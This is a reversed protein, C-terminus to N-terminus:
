KDYRFSVTGTEDEAAVLNGRRDYRYGIERGTGTSIWTRNGGPGYGFGYEMGSGNETLGTIRGAKDYALFYLGDRSAAERLYGDQGYRYSYLVTEGQRIGTLRNMCDYSYSISKGDPFSVEAPNGRIDYRYEAEYAAAEKIVRSQADYRFVYEREEPTIISICNGGADYTFTQAPGEDVALSVCDGAPSYGYTIRSGCSDTRTVVNGGPGYAYRIEAGSPDRRVTMRRAADYERTWTNGEPDTESAPNGNKDYGYSWDNGEEDRYGTLRRAGDYTFSVSSGDAKSIKELHGEATYTYKVTGLVRDHRETLRGLLDYRYSIENKGETTIGTIDGAPNYRYQRTSGDPHLVETIRPGDRRYERRFGEQDTRSVLRGMGDYGFRVTGGDPYVRKVCKGHDGYYSRTIGGLPNEYRICNGSRYEWVSVGGRSNEKRILRGSKDYGYGTIGGGPDTVETVRGCGDYRFRRIGGASLLREETCNGRCDYEFETVCGNETKRIIRGCGNYQLELSIGSGEARVQNHRTDYGFTVTSGNKGTYSIMDGRLSYSWKETGGAPDVAGTLRGLSDYVYTYRGGYPNVYGTCHGYDDYFFAERGGSDYLIKELQGDPGYRYETLRNEEDTITKINGNRDRSVTLRGRWSNVEEPFATAGYDFYVTRGQLDTARIMRGETDFERELIEGSPLYVATRNNRSDYTFATVNGCGDRLRILNGRSDYERAAETGDDYRRRIERGRNDFYYRIRNGCKDTFCASGDAESYEYTERYGEEDTVRRVRRPEHATYEYTISSGDERSIQTLYPGTYSFLVTVGGPDTVSTLRHEPDYGYIYARGGPGSVETILGFKNKKIRCRNGFPDTIEELEGSAGYTYLYAKGTSKRDATLRGFKDFYERATQKKKLTITGDELIIGTEAGSQSRLVTEGPLFRAIGEGKPEASLDVDGLYYIVPTGAADIYTITGTGTWSLSQDSGSPLTYRNLQGIYRSYNEEQTFRSISEDTESRLDDIVALRCTSGSLLDRNEGAATLRRFIESKYLGFVEIESLLRENVPPRTEAAIITELAEITEEIQELRDRYFSIIDDIVTFGRSYMGFADDKKRDLEESLLESLEKKQGSGPDHGFIIRRDGGFAWSEGFSIGTRIFSGYSRLVPIGRGETVDEQSFWLEGTSVRVPDGTLPSNYGDGREEAHEISDLLLEDMERCQDLFDEYLDVSEKEATKMKEDLEEPDPFGAEGPDDELFLSIESPPTGESIFVTEWEAPYSKVVPPNYEVWEVIEEYEAYYGWTIHFIGGETYWFYEYGEQELNLLYEDSFGGPDSTTDKGATVWGEKIVTTVWEGEIVEEYAEKILIEIPYGGDGAGATLPNFLFYSLIGCIFLYYFRM